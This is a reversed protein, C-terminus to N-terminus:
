KATEDKEDIAVLVVLSVPKVNMNGVGCNLQEEVAQNIISGLFCCLEDFDNPLCSTQAMVPNTMALNM